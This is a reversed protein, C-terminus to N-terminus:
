TMSQLCRLTTEPNRDCALFVQLVTAEDVGTSTLKRVIRKEADSLGAFLSSLRTELTMPQNKAREEAQLARFARDLDYNAQRLAIECQHRSFGHVMLTDVRARFDGPETSTRQSPKPANWPRILRRDSEQVFVRVGPPLEIDGVRRDDPLLSALHILRLNEASFGCQEEIIGKLERVTAEPNAKVSFERGAVTCLPIECM